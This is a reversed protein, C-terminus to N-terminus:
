LWYPKYGDGYGIFYYTSPQIDSYWVTHLIECLFDEFEPSFINSKMKNCPLTKTMVKDINLLYSQNIAQFIEISSICTKFPM